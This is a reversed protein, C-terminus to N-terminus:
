MKNTTMSTTPKLIFAVGVLVVGLLLHLVNDATNIAPAADTGGLLTNTLGTAAFGLVTVLLYVVGLIINVLRANRGTDVFAGLLLVAGTLLHVVNHILSVQFVGLLPNMVFGLIGVLVLVIGFIAAILKNWNQEAM